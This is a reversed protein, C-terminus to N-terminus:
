KAQKAIAMNVEAINDATTVDGGSTEAAMTIKAWVADFEELHHGSQMPYGIQPPQMLPWHFKLDASLARKSGASKHNLKIAKIVAKRQIVKAKKAADILNKYEQGGRQNKLLASNTAAKLAELAQSVEPYIPM